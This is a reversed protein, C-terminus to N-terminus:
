RTSTGFPPATTMWFLRRSFPGFASFWEAAIEIPASPTFLGVGWFGHPPVVLEAHIAGIGGDEHHIERCRRGYKPVVMKAPLDSRQSAISFHQPSQAYGIFPNLALPHVM